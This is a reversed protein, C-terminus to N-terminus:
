SPPLAPSPHPLYRPAPMWCGGSSGEPPPPPLRPIRDWPQGHGRKWRGPSASNPPHGLLLFFHPGTALTGPGHPPPAHSGGVWWVSLVTCAPAQLTLCLGPSLSALPMQPCPALMRGVWPPAAAVGSEAVAGGGLTRCTLSFLYPKGTGVAGASDTDRALPVRTTTTSARSVWPGPPSWAPTQCSLGVPLCVRLSPGPQGPEPCFLSGPPPSREAPDQGPRQGPHCLYCRPM